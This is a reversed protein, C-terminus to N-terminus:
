IMRHEGEHPRAPVRAANHGEQTLPALDQYHDQFCVISEKSRVPRRRPYMTVSGPSHDWTRPSLQIVRKTCLQHRVISEKRSAPLRGYHRATKGSSYHRTSSITRVAFSVRGHVAQRMGIWADSHRWLSGLCSSLANLAVSFGCPVRRQPLWVIRLACQSAELGSYRGGM